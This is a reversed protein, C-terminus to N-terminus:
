ECVGHDAAFVAISVHEIRPQDCAQLGALTVALAELEGLSGAPKTLQTQRHLAAQRHSDSPATIPQQWPLPTSM